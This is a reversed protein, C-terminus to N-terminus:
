LVSLIQKAKDKCKEPFKEGAIRVLEGVNAAQMPKINPGVALRKLVSCARDQVAKSDSHLVMAMVIADLAEEEVIRIKSRDDTAALNSLVGCGKEQVTSADAHAQMSNIIASIGGVEMMVQRNQADVSLTWLARCCWEQVGVVDSHVWMARIIVDIGGSDGIIAKNEPNVALNSLTWAGAEQVGPEDRHVQMSSIVADIGGVNAVEVKNDDSNACINRLARLAKEQLDVDEPHMIMSIVVAGGAGSQMIQRKLPSDYSAFNTIASCAKAQVNGDESHRNMAEVIKDIVNQEMITEHNGEAAGLNSLAAMSKEQIEPDDPFGEMATMIVDLAGTRVLQIQNQATASLNWIARCGSTQVETDHPHTRMATVVTELAGRGALEDYEENSLHLNSLDKLAENQVLPSSPLLRMVDLIELFDGNAAELREMAIDEKRQVVRQMSSQRSGPTSFGGGSSRRSRHSSSRMSDHESTIETETELVASPTNQKKKARKWSLQRGAGAEGDEASSMSSMTRNSEARAAAAPIAPFGQADLGEFEVAGGRNLVGPFAQFEDEDDTKDFTEFSHSDRSHMSAVQEWSNIDEGETDHQQKKNADGVNNRRRSARFKSALHQAAMRGLVAARLNDTSSNLDPDAANGEGELITDNAGNPGGSQILYPASSSSRGGVSEMSRSSYGTQERQLGSRMSLTRASPSMRPPGRSRRPRDTSGGISGSRLSDNDEDHSQYGSHLPPQLSAPVPNSRSSLSTDQGNEPIPSNTASSQHQMSASRHAPVRMARVGPGQLQLNSQSRTFRELDQRTAPRSLAPLVETRSNVELPKCKLCRGDLVKGHLTIPIMKFLKKQYCKQGCTICEGKKRRSDELQAASMLSGADSFNAGVNEMKNM